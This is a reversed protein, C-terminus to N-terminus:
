QDQKPCSNVYTRLAQVALYTVIAPWVLFSLALTLPTFGRSGRSEWFFYATGLGCLIYYLESM